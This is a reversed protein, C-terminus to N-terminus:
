GDDAQEARCLKSQLRRLEPDGDLVYEIAIRDTVTLEQAVRAIRLGKPIAVSGSDPHLDGTILQLLSTKGAGNSGAVGVKSASYITLNVDRLVVRGVRLGEVNEFTLM